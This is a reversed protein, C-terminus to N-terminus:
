PYSHSQQSVEVVALEFWADGGSCILPTVTESEYAGALLHYRGTPVDPAISLRFEDVVVPKEQWEHWLTTPFRGMGMQQDIQAVLGTTDDVLHLTFTVHEDLPSRATWAMWIALTEGPEVKIVPGWSPGEPPLGAAVLVLGHEFSVDYRALLVDYEPGRWKWLVLGGPTIAHAAFRPVRMPQGPQEEVIWPYLPASIAGPGPTQTLLYDPPMTRETLRYPPLLLMDLQWRNALWPLYTWDSAVAADPPVTALLARAARTEETVAFRTPEHARGGPLPSWYRASMLAAVLLVVGAIRGLRPSRAGVRQLAVVTALFLFPVLPATYHHQISTQFQYDSLLLYTLPPLTLLAAPLGLVPLGALPALIQWLFTAKSRTAVVEVVTAPRTLLTRIIQGPKEGLTGYRRAFTYSEISQAFTPMVRGFLLVAWLTAGVTLAAGFRRRRQILLAYIGFGVAILAVEEKVLLAMGLWIITARPRENLLAAGAAMLLPTSLAIAHFDALAVFHVLPSLFYPIVVLLALSWGLRPRAFAFLPAAAAALAVTQVVLLLRADPWLSYLPVLVALIPTFHYGLFNTTEHILSSYFPRGQTTAWVVQTFVGLDFGTNFALHRAIALRGIALGWLATLTGIALWQWRRISTCAPISKLRHMLGVSRM